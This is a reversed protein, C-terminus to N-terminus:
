PRPRRSESTGVFRMTAGVDRIVDRYTALAHEPMRVMALIIVSGQARFLNVQYAVADKSRIRIDAQVVGRAAMGPLAARQVDARDVDKLSALDRALESSRAQALRRLDVPGRRTVVEFQLTPGVGLVPDQLVMAGEERPSWHSPVRVEMGGRRVTGGPLRALTAEAPTLLQVVGCAVTLVALLVGAVALGRRLARSLPRPGPILMLLTILSGGVLGGIHASNDVMELKYGIFINLGLIVLLNYFVQRRWHEPYHGRSRAMGMIVAGLLGFIAGSAGVSLRSTEGFVASTASGAVGAVLYIIWLRASGFLQEGFRGLMFLAYGNVLLHLIGAHLFMSTILRWPEGGLTAAVLNGGFRSLTWGDTSGGALEVWVHVLALLAMLVFTVPALRVLSGRLRPVSGYARANALVRRALAALEDTLHEEQLPPPPQELRMLAGAAEQPLDDERRAVAQWVKQAAQLEGARALAVALWVMRGEASMGPPFGIHSEQLKELEGALGLHSLFVLRAQNVLAAVEADAAAKGYELAEQCRGAEEFRDLEMFARVMYSAVAPSATALGVGGERDYLQAAEEWQRKLLMFVMLQELVALRLAPDLDGRELQAQRQTMVEDLGLDDMMVLGRLIERDGRLGAGPQLLMRASILSLARAWDSRRLARRMLLTLAYPAVVLAGFAAAAAYTLAGTADDALAWIALALNLALLAAFGLAKRGKRALLGILSLSISAVIVSLAIVPLSLV